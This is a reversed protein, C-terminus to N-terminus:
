ANIMHYSKALVSPNKRTIMYSQILGLRCCKWNQRKLVKKLSDQKRMKIAVTTNNTGHPPQLFDGRVNLRRNKFITHCSMITTNITSETKVKRCKELQTTGINRSSYQQIVRLIHHRSKFDTKQCGIQLKCAEYGRIGKLFEV